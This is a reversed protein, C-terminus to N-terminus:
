RVRRSESTGCEPCAHIEEIIGGLAPDARAAEEACTPDTLKEAHCNMEAGCSPCTMKAKTEPM